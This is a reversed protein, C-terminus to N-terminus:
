KRLSKIQMFISPILLLVSISLSFIEVITGVFGKSVWPTFLAIAFFWISIADLKREVIGKRVGENFVSAGVFILIVALIALDPKSEQAYKESVILWKGIIYSAVCLFQFGTFLLTSRKLNRDEM